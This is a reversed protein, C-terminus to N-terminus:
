EPWLRSAGKAATRPQSRVKFAEPNTDLTRLMIGLTAKQQKTRHGRSGGVRRGQSGALYLLADAVELLKDSTPAGALRQASVDVSGISVSGHRQASRRYWAYANSYV